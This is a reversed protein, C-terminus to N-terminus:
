SLDGDEDADFDSDEVDWDPQDDDSYDEDDAFEGEDDEDADIAAQQRPKLIKFYYGAGGVALVALIIFLIMGTNSEAAAPAPEPQPDPEPESEPTPIPAPIPEPVPEPDPIAGETPPSKEALAMLDDETVANLLYVGDSDRQRDIVLYFINEEETTITFFEKGDQETANDVVSGTGDPTFPKSEADPIASETPDIEPAPVPDTTQPTQTAPTSPAAPAPTTPTPTSPTAAPDSSSAEEYYPNKVTVTKSRNGAEDVAYVFIEREDADAYEKVRVDLSGDRLDDLEHGNVFVSGVGSLTDEADIRLTKGDIRAKVSPAERDFCEIYLSRVHAKGTSDTVAVYITDNDTISFSAHLGDALDGSIDQWKGNQGAKIEAKDFGTGAIDELKIKVTASKTYWGGPPTITIRYKAEVPPPPPEPTSSEQPTEPASPDPEVQTIGGTQAGGSILEPGSAFVPLSLAFIAGTCLLLTLLKSKM